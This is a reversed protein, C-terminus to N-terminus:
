CRVGGGNVSMTQATVYSARDSALFLALEAAEEATGMRKLSTSQEVGRGLRASLSNSDKLSVWLDTDIPGPCAANMRIGHRGYENAIAKVFANVGGRCASSLAEGIMGVKGSDSGVIVISGDGQALMHPLVARTIHVCSRLEIDIHHTDDEPPTDLFLRFTAIYGITSICADISGLEEVTGDVVAKVAEADTADLELVLARRGLEDARSTLAVDAGRELLLRAAAAGVGGSAGIVLVNKDAFEM